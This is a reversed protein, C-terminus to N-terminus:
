LENLLLWNVQVNLQINIKTFAKEYEFIWTSELCMGWDVDLNDFAM